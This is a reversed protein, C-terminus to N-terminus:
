KKKLIFIKKEQNNNNCNNNTNKIPPFALAAKENNTKFILMFYRLKKLKKGLYIFFLVIQILFMFFMCYFGINKKLIKLNFVLNYCYIIDINFKLLSSIFSEKLSDFNLKEDMNSEDNTNNNNLSDQILNSDYICNATMLDYNMGYYKCGKQCFSANQYIDTRRDKIIIDKGDSNEYSQCIDNFYDDNANFVDVGKDALDLASQINLEKIEGIYTMVKINEKCLSLDLKNGLRDYVEIQINKGLDFSKDNNNNKDEKNNQTRKSEINLVYLNENKSINYHEKIINTCNGLDIASIGRKLQEKPDLNDSSLVM